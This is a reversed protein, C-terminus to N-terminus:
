LSTEVESSMVGFYFPVVVDRISIMTSVSIVQGCQPWLKGNSISVECDSCDSMSSQVTQQRGILRVIRQRGPATISRLQLPARHADCKNTRRDYVAAVFEREKKRVPM